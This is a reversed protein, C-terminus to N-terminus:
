EGEHQELCTLGNNMKLVCILSNKASIWSNESGAYVSVCSGHELGLFTTLVYNFYDM